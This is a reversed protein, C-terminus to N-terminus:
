GSRGIYQWGWGVLGAPANDGLVDESDSVEPALGTATVENGWVIFGGSEWLQRELAEYAAAREATDVISEATAIAEDLAFEATENFFSTSMEGMRLQLEFPVGGWQSAGFPAQLYVTEVNYLEAPDVERVSLDIGAVAAHQEFALACELAGSGVNATVLEVALDTIGADNLIRRAEDPDYTRQELPSDGGRAVIAGIIDNAPEGNGGLGVAVCSERDIALRLAQRVAPNDFPPTDQRMYFVAASGVDALVVEYGAGTVEGIQSAPVPAIDIDGSLLANVSATPDGISLIVLEDVLAVQGWYDDNRSFVSRDGPTFSEFKFPGTGIPESFEETGDKVIMTAATTLFLDFNAQPALLAVEVTLDDPATTNALDINGVEVFGRLFQTQIRNFTYIVDASTFASGDHWSVGERLRITWVTADPNHTMSEALVPQVGDTTVIALNEYLAANRAIDVGVQWNHPDLSEIPGGVGTFGVRLSGGSAPQASDDDSSDDDSGDDGSGDDATSDDTIASEDTAGDDDTQTTATSAPATESDDDGGCATAFLLLTALATALVFRTTPKM